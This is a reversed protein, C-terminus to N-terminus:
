LNNWENYIEEKLMRYKEDLEPSLKKTHMHLTRLQFAFYISFLGASLFSLAVWFVISLGAFIPNWLLVFSFLAGLVGLALLYGWNRAGYRKIDLSLTIAAISRFLILFGIYFALTTMSLASNTLLLVGVIFTIIGFALSLGWNDLQERNSISFLIESVGGLLFSLAFLIALTAFSSLPAIFAIIGIIVFVLGVLLPIYWYKIAKKITRLFILEM